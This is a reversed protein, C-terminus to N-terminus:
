KKNNQNNLYSVLYSHLRELEVVAKNYSLKKGLEEDFQEKLIPCSFGTVEYGFITTITCVTTREGLFAYEAGSVFAEVTRPAELTSLHSELEIFFPDEKLPNGLEDFYQQSGIGKILKTLEM